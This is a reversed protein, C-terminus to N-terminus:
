FTENGREYLDAVPYQGSSCGWPATGTKFFWYNNLWIIQRNHYVFNIIWLTRSYNRRTTYSSFPGCSVSARLCSSKNNFSARLSAGMLIFNKKKCFIRPISLEEEKLKTWRCIKTRSLFTARNKKEIELDSLDMLMRRKNVTMLDATISYGM